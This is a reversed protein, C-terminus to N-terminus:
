SAMLRRRAAFAVLGIFGLGLGLGAWRGFGADVSEGGAPVSPNEPVDVPDVTDVPDTPDCDIALNDFRTVDNAVNSGEMSFGIEDLDSLIDAFAM